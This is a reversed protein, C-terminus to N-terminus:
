NIKWYGKRDSGVREIVSKEKLSKLRMAVTKRSIKLKEALQPMTYGANELLLALIEQEKETVRETVKYFEGPGVQLSAVSEMPIVIEFINDELFVPTGGSYLKTYKNTNRMGSGLEDAYGIERFVKSIPPNKPFPEFQNLKLEGHGHPM